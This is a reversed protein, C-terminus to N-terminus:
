EWKRRRGTIIDLYGQELLYEPREKPHMTVLRNGEDYTITAVLRSFRLSIVNDIYVRILKIGRGDKEVIEASRIPYM